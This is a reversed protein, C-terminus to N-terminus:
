AAQGLYNFKKLLKTACMQRQKSKRPFVGITRGQISLCHQINKVFLNYFKVRLHLLTVATTMNLKNTVQTNQVCVISLQSIFNHVARPFLM